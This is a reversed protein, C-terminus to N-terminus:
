SSKGRRYNERKVYEVIKRILHFSIMGHGCLTSIELTEREPLRERAGFLGPFARRQPPRDRGQSPM